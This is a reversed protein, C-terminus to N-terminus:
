GFLADNMMKAYNIDSGKKFHKSKLNEGQIWMRIAM